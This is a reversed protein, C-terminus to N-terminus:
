LRFLRKPNDYLFMRAVEMAKDADFVGEEVKAALARAVDARALHQHGYVGDV